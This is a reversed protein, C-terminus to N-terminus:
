CLLAVVPSMSVLPSGTTMTSVFLFPLGRSWEADRALGSSPGM